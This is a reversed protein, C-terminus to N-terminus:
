KKPTVKIKKPQKAKIKPLNVELVGNRYNAEIKDSDVVAPIPVSRYFNGYVFESRCCEDEVVESERKKEGRIILYSGSLSIDIDEEKMGPLEIKVLYKAPKEILEVAPIWNKDRPIQWSLPSNYPSGMMDNLYWDYEELDRFPRWLSIAEGPKHVRIAM